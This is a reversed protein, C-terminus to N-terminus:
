KFNVRHEDSVFSGTSCLGFWILVSLCKLSHNVCPYVFQVSVLSLSVFLCLPWSLSVKREWIWRGVQQWMLRHLHLRKKLAWVSLSVNESGPNSEKPEIGKTRNRSGRPPASSDKLLVRFDLRSLAAEAAMAPGIQTQPTRFQSGGFGGIAPLNDTQRTIRLRGDPLHKYWLLWLVSLPEM